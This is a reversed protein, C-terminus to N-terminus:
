LLFDTDPPPQRFCLVAIDRLEWPGRLELAANRVVDRDESAEIVQGSLVRGTQPDREVENLLVWENDCRRRVEDISM